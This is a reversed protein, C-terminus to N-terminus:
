HVFINSNDQVDFSPILEPRLLLSDSMITQAVVRVSNHFQSLTGTNRVTVDWGDYGDLARESPHDDDRSDSADGWKLRRDLPTEIRCLTGDFEEKVMEAENPFRVDSIVINEADSQRISRSMARVWFDRGISDVLEPLRERFLETGVVQFIRSPSVGWFPDVETKKDGDCQEDTFGFVGKGIDEKIPDAFAFQSFGLDQKLVKAAEDKGSHKKYGFGIVNM